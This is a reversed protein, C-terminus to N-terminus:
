PHDSKHTHLPEKKRVLLATPRKPPKCHTPCAITFGPNPILACSLNRTSHSKPTKQTPARTTIRRRRDITPPPQPFFPQPRLPPITPGYRSSPARPRQTSPTPMVPPPYVLPQSRPRTGFIRGPYAGNPVVTEPTSHGSQEALAVEDAWSSLSTTQLPPQSTHTVTHQTTEFTPPPQSVSQDGQLLLEQPLSPPRILVSPSSMDSGIYLHLERSSYSSTAPSPLPNLRAYNATDVSQPQPLSQAMMFLAPTQMKCVLEPVQHSLVLPTLPSPPIDKVELMIVSHPRCKSSNTFRRGANRSHTSHLRWFLFTNPVLVLNVLFSTKRLKRIILTM